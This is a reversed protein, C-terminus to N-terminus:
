TGRAASAGACRRIRRSERVRAGASPAGALRHLRREPNHETRTPAPDVPQLKRQVPDREPSLVPPAGTIPMYQAWDVTTNPNAASAGSTPIPSPFRQGVNQGSAATVFPTEFLPPAFSDYDYGYPPCASMIGASLGEIATHFIGYGARISTKGPGGFLKGLWGNALDPSYALGVRPAFNHYQTPSLTNPIGPDGPFVLGNPAGPICWRSSASCWRRCSTTSRAGPLCCTGACIRLEPDPEIQDALQGARILRHVPQPSLLQKLRGPQLQQRHRPPLRRLGFRDRTGQFLFAGNYVANPNINVQDYHMGAGFKLLHKGVAKSLSDSWQYTNNAQVVGTTDVGITFDNFASTKSAKSRPRWPWLAPNEKPM